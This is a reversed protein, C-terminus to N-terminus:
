FRNTLAVHLKGDLPGDGKGWGLSVGVAGLGSPVEFGVGYGPRYLTQSVAVGTSDAFPRYMVGQDLFAFARGGAAPFLGAELRLIAWRSARFEGERYGRLQRAGGIPELDYFPIVDENSIRLGGEFAATAGSGGGLRRHAEGRAAAFLQTARRTGGSPRLHERKFV